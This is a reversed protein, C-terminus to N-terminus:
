IDGNINAAVHGDDDTNQRADRGYDGDSTWEVFFNESEMQNVRDTEQWTMYVEFLATSGKRDSRLERCLLKLFTEGLETTISKVFRSHSEKNM